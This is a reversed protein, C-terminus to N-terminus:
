TPLTQSSRLLRRLPTQKRYGTLRSSLLWTAVFALQATALYFLSGRPGFLAAAWQFCAGGGIGNGARGVGIRVAGDNPFFSKVHSRIALEAGGKSGSYPDSGGLRDAERYGWVWEANNYCKDSTILVGVCTKNLVRLAELVHLTGLVNTQWTELPDLYSRKVLPQAALHFVFDPQNEQVIHRLAGLDRIDISHNIVLEKIEAAEFHSPETPPELSVGTVKAGLQHLWATLWSGKFGTHGTVLVSSNNYINFNNM